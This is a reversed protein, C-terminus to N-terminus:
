LSALFVITTLPSMLSLISNSFIAVAVVAVTLAIPELFIWTVYSPATSGAFAFTETFFPATSVSISLVVKESSLVTAVISVFALSIM